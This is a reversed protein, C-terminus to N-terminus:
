SSSLSRSTTLALLPCAGATATSLDYEEVKDGGESILLLSPTKARFRKKIESSSTRAVELGIEAAPMKQM